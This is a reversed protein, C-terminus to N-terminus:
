DSKSDSEGAQRHAVCCYHRGAALISESVPQNVGCYACRVMGEPEREVPARPEGSRAAQSKRWLWVVVVALAIWLLYKTM